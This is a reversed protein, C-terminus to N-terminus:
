KDTKIMLDYGTGECGCLLLSLEDYYYGNAGKNKSIYNITENVTANTMTPDLLQSAYQILEKCQDLTAGDTIEVSIADYAM